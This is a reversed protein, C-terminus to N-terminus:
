VRKMTTMGIITMGLNWADKKKENWDFRSM